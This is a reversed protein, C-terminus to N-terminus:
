MHTETERVHLTGRNSPSHKTKPKGTTSGQHVWTHLRVRANGAEDASDRTAGGALTLRSTAWVLSRVQESIDLM